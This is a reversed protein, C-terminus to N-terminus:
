PRHHFSRPISSASRPLRNTSQSWVTTRPHDYVFFCLDLLPCPPLPSAPRCPSSNFGPRGKPRTRTPGARTGRIGLIAISLVAYPLVFALRLRSRPDACLGASPLPSSAQYPSKGSVSSSGSYSLADLSKPPPITVGLAVLIITFWHTKIATKSLDSTALRAVWSGTRVHSIKSGRNECLM